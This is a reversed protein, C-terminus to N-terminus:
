VKMNQLTKALDERVTCCVCGNLIEIVQEEEHKKDVVLKEDM